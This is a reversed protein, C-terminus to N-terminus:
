TRAPTFHKETDGLTSSPVPCLDRPHSEPVSPAAWTPPLGVELSAPEVQPGSHISSSKLHAAEGRGKVRWRVGSCLNYGAWNPVTKRLTRELLPDWRGM